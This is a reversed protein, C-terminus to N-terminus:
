NIEENKKELEFNMQSKYEEVERHQTEIIEKNREIEVALKM